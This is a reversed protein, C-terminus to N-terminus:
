ASGSRAVSISSARGAPVVTPSAISRERIASRWGSASKAASAVPTKPRITARSATSASPSRTSSYRGSRTSGFDARRRRARRPQLRVDDRRARDPGERDRRVRRAAGLGAGVRREPQSPQRGRGQRAAAGRRCTQGGRVAMMLATTGNPSEADIKAGSDILFRMVELHGNSAAYILPTWGPPNIEAGRTFLLKVIALNGNLAAVTVPRDGFRNQADVKAGGALLIEVTTQWGSRAAILLVPDGNPDVTNPDMGRALMARVDDSRDAVVAQVFREYLDQAPAAATLGFGAFACLAGAAIRKRWDNFTM